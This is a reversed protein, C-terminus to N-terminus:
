YAIGFLIFHLIYISFLTKLHHKHHCFSPSLHQKHWQWTDTGIHRCHTTDLSVWPGLGAGIHCCGTNAPEPESWRFSTESITDEILRNTLPIKHETIRMISWQICSWSRNVVIFQVMLFLLVVHKITLISM